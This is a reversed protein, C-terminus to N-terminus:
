ILQVLQNFFGECQDILMHRAEVGARRSRHKLLPAHHLVVLSSRHTIFSSRHVVFSSRHVVMYTDLVDIALCKMQPEDNRECLSVVFWLLPLTGSQRLCVFM